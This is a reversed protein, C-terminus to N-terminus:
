LANNQQRAQNPRTSIFLKSYARKASFSLSHANHFTRNQTGTNCRAFQVVALRPLIKYKPSIALGKLRINVAIFNLFIGHRPPEPFSSRRRGTNINGPKDIPLDINFKIRNACRLFSNRHYKLNQRLFSLETCPCVPYHYFDTHVVLAIDNSHNSLDSRHYNGQQM